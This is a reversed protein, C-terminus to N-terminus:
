QQLQWWRFDGELQKHVGLEGVEALSAQAESLSTLAAM